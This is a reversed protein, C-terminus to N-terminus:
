VMAPVPVLLGRSALFAGFEADQEPQLGARRIWALVGDAGRLGYYGPLMVIATVLPWRYAREGLATTIRVEEDTIVFSRFQEATRRAALKRIVRELHVLRPVRALLTVFPVIVLWAWVLGGLEALASLGGAVVGIVVGAVASAALRIRVTRLEWRVLRLDEAADPQVMFEVRM